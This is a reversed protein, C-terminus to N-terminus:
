PRANVPASRAAGELSGTEVAKIGLRLLFLFIEFAQRNRPDEGELYDSLALGNLVALILTSLAEDGVPLKVGSTGLVDNMGKAILARADRQLAASRRRLEPDRRATAWVEVNLATATKNQQIEAWLSELATIARRGPSGETAVTATRVRDM